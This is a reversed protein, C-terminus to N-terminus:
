PQEEEVYEWEEGRSEKYVSFGGDRGYVGDDPVKRDATMKDPDYSAQSVEYIEGEKFGLRDDSELMRIRKM